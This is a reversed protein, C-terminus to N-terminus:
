ITQYWLEIADRLAQQTSKKGTFDLSSALSAWSQRQLIRRIILSQQTNTLSMLALPHCWLGGEIMYNVQEVPRNGDIFTEINHRQFDDVTANVKCSVMLKVVLAPELACHAQALDYRFSQQFRNNAVGVFGALKKTIPKLVMLSHTGSASDRNLGLRVAQYQHNFWFQVLSDTAGFSAGLIDIANGKAWQTVAKDLGGGIGYGQCSPHVAIRMVRAYRYQAAGKIGVQALLSQPLLHGRLRRKGLAIEHALEDDLQGEKLVLSAGIIQGHLRAVFIALDPADLLQRFDSPSTQYHALVLLSFLQALLDDDNALVAQNLEQYKILEGDKFDLQSNINVDQINLGLMRNSLREVPDDQQWRVPMSMDIRKMQPSIKKLTSLFRLAFGRGTGEYGHITTAFVLRSYHKALAELMPSPIAAAEDVLLLDCVPREKVLEDPAIFQLRKGQWLLTNQTKASGALLAQAHKFVSHLAATKPATVIVHSLKSSLLTAAAIGLASSKGRGRDATIVLPRNRHGTATKIIHEVCKAQESTAFPPTLSPQTLLPPKINNIPQTISQNVIIANNDNEIERMLRKIFFTNVKGMDEPTAVYRKYDPDLYNEWEAWLPAIIFCVGGGVLTGISQGFAEPHFGSYANFVLQSYEQGLSLHAKSMPTVFDHNGDGLWLCEKPEVISTLIDLAWTQEGSLVVLQRTQSRAFDNTLQILSQTLKSM